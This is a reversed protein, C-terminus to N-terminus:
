RGAKREFSCKRAKSGIIRQCDSRKRGVPLLSNPLTWTSVTDINSAQALARCRHDRNRDVVSIVSTRSALPRRPSKTQFGSRQEADTAAIAEGFRDKIRGRLARLVRLKSIRLNRLNGCIEASESKRILFSPISSIPPPTQFENPAWERESSGAAKGEIESIGKRSEATRISDDTDM